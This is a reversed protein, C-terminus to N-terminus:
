ERGWGEREILREVRDRIDDRIERVRALPRGKPDDVQWDDCRAGPVFPCEDGCGMTILVQAQRALESTLKTPVAAFLDMRVERMADIVAAHVRPVPTTGASIARAKSPDAIENFFAAAM